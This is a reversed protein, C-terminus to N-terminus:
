VPSGRLGRSQLRVSGDAAFRRGGGGSDIRGSSRSGVKLILRCCPRCRGAWTKVPPEVPPPCCPARRRMPRSRRRCGPRASAPVVEIEPFPYDDTHVSLEPEPTYVFHRYVGWQKVDAFYAAFSYFDRITFPDYKHDHCEACALTSGLWATSVTRVRDSAYKALYEKVQAGGERTVMNLRNFGTAIQQEVTAQPLLDGAIQEITFQDFPKNRNFSDIVYDRYPFNNLLQDGHLGTSDAFRVLDLWPVAMREGYHPSGLLRDVQADYAGPRTDRVFAEV